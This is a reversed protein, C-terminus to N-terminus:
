RSSRGLGRYEIGAGTWQDPDLAPDVGAYQPWETAVVLLSCGATATVPDDACELAFKSGDVVPDHARVSAGQDLLSLAIAVAPSERTDNTAAKFALGWLAIREGELSGEAADVVKDIVQELQRRNAERASELVLLTTGHDRALKVLAETDKPLCSGGWGPGPKLFSSGIRSDMGVVGLVNVVDTELLECLNAIENVFSLRAALISNAVYKALEASRGDTTVIPCDFGEYLEAIADITGRDGAGILIRDPYLFDRVANGESLFEPNSGVRASTGVLLSRLEDSWGVPVTSKTVVVAEPNLYPAIERAVARLAGLDPRGDSGPPTPLCLFVVEAHEAAERNTTTFRIRGSVLTEELLETLGDEYLTTIGHALEDVREESIESCVVDHGRSAFCVATTLGVFGAGVVGIHSM